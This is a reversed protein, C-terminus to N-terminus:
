HVTAPSSRRLPPLRSRLHAPRLGRGRATSATTVTRMQVDYGGGNDLGTVTYELDGSGTTWVDQVETWNGDVTEDASTEIYRLDYATIGTVGTPATWAITFRGDGPTVSDITPAAVPTQAAIRAPAVLVAVTACLALLLLCAM